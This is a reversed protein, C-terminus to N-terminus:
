LLKERKNKRSSRHTQFLHDHRGETEEVWFSVIKAELSMVCVGPQQQHDYSESAASQASNTGTAQLHFGEGTKAWLTLSDEWLHSIKQLGNCLSM